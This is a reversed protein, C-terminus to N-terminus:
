YNQTSIQILKIQLYSTKDLVKENVHQHSAKGKPLLETQADLSYYLIIFFLSVTLCNQKIFNLINKIKTCTQM